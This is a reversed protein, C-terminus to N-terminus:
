SRMVDENRSNEQCFPQNDVRVGMIVDGNRYNERCFPQCDM